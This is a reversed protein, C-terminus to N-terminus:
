TPRVLGAVVANRTDNERKLASNLWGEGKTPSGPSFRTMTRLSRSPRRCVAANTSMTM